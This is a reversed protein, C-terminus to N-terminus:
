DQINDEVIYKENLFARRFFGLPKDIPVKVHEYRVKGEQYGHAWSDIYTYIYEQGEYVVRCKKHCSPLFYSALEDWGIFDDINEWFSFYSKEKEDASWKETFYKIQGSPSISAKIHKFELIKEKTDINNETIFRLFLDLPSHTKEIGMPLDFFFSSWRLHDGLERRIDEAMFEKRMPSLVEDAYSIIDNCHDAAYSHRGMAYNRSLWILNAERYKERLRVIDTIKKRKLFDTFAAVLAHFEETDFEIDRFLRYREAESQGNHGATETIGIAYRWSMWALAEKYLYDDKKIRKAMPVKKQLTRLHHYQNWIMALNALIQM